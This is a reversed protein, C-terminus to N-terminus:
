GAAETQHRPVHLGALFGRLLANILRHVAQFLSGDAIAPAITSDAGATLCRDALRKDRPNSVHYRSVCCLGDTDDDCVITRNSSAAQTPQELTLDPEDDHALGTVAGLGHVEDAISTGVNQEQGQRETRSKLRAQSRSSDSFASIVLAESLSARDTAAARNVSATCGSEARAWVTDNM